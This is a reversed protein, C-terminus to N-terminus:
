RFIKGFGRAKLEGMEKALRGLRETKDAVERQLRAIKQDREAVQATLADAADETVLLYLLDAEPLSAPLRTQRAPPCSAVARHLAAEDDIPQWEAGLALANLALAEARAHAVLELVLALRRDLAAADRPRRQWPAFGAVATDCCIAIGDAHLESGGRFVRSM